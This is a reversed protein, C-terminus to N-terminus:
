ESRGFRHSTLQDDQRRFEERHDAPLQGKAGQFAGAGAEASQDLSKPLLLRRVFGEKWQPQLYAIVKRNDALHQITSYSLNTFLVCFKDDGNRQLLTGEAPSNPTRHPVSNFGIFNRM